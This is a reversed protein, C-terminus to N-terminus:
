LPMVALYRRSFSGTGGVIKAQMTFTNSGPKLESHKRRGDLMNRSFYHICMTRTQQNAVRGDHLIRWQNSSPVSTAGSVSVSVASSASATSNSAACAFFVLASDSTTLTISPGGTLTVYSTSTTTNTGSVFATTMRYASLSRFGATVAYQASQTAKAPFMQMLNDRIHQNYEQASFITGDVATM